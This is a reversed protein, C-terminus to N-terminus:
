RLTIIVPTDWRNGEKKMFELFYDRNQFLTDQHEWAGYAYYEASNGEMNLEACWTQTLGRGNDPTDFIGTLDSNPVILGMGFIFEKNYSQHDHIAMATYNRFKIEELPMDNFIRAIGTILKVNEPLPKYIVVKNEYNHKGAWITVIQRLSDMKYDEIEWGYFDLAFMSRVPGEVLNTFKTSDIRDTRESALRGLRGFKEGDIWAGLGGLGFSSGVSMIDRGWEAWVHYTDGPYGDYRIGVSDLVMDTVRKGFYDRNNRGDFYHRFGVKDNEWAVGDMQFPYFGQEKITKQLDKYIVDSKLEAIAEEHSAKRGYRINTRTEFEPYQAADVWVIKLAAKSTPELSVIFALEDWKGDGDIDDVQSAIFTGSLTDMVAPVLEGAPQLQERTLVVTEDPRNMQTPNSIDVIWEKNETKGCSILALTAALTLLKKM